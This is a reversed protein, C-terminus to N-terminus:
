ESLGKTPLIAASVSDVPRMLEWTPSSPTGTRVERSTPESGGHGGYPANYSARQESRVPGGLVWRLPTRLMLAAFTGTLSVVGVFLIAVVAEWPLRTSLGTGDLVSRTIQIFLTHGFYVGGTLTALHAPSLVKRRPTTRPARQERQQWCWSLSFIGAIAAFCWLAATPTYIDSAREVSEGSWVSVMYYLVQLVGVVGTVALIQRYRRSVFNLVQDFHLAVLMGAILFEQYSLIDRSLPFATNIDRTLDSAPAFWARYHGFLGFFVAFLLSATLIRGHHRTMRMLTLLVPFVLYFQFIVVVFYLQSYGLPISHRLFAGVENWSASVTILSFVLYIGTWALYPIGIEWYRRKWFGWVSRPHTLQSYCVVLGTLFFFSNRSLHLMTIFGTGVFNGSMNAWIFSHQSLVALCAIVRYLSFMELYGRKSADHPVGDSLTAQAVPRNQVLM